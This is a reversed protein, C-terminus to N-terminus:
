LPLFRAGLSANKKGWNEPTLQLLEIELVEGTKFLESPRPPYPFTQYETM